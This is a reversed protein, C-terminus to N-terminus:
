RSRPKRARERRRRRSARPVRRGPRLRLRRARRLDRGALRPLVAATTPLLQRYFPAGPNYHATTFVEATGTNRYRCGLAELREKWESTLTDTM